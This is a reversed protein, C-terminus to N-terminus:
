QLRGADAYVAQLCVQMRGAHSVETPAGAVKVITRFLCTLLVGNM